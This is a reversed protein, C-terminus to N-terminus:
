FLVSVSFFFGSEGRSNIAYSWGLATDYYTVLDIGVGGGYLLRNVLRTNAPDTIANNVLGWDFFTKLYITYPLTRFEKLPVWRGLYKEGSLIRKKFDTKHLVYDQGEIVYLDYGRVFINDYGLGKFFNYPQKDPFSLKASVSNSFYFGKNLNFHREATALFNLQNIDDFIGLGLKEVKAKVLFGELPYSAYDRQDRKFEYSLAFIRQLTKGPLFYNPNLVAVTDAVTNHYFQLKFYHYTYFSYRLVYTLSSEFNKKLIRDFKLFCQRHDQSKYAINKSEEYSLVVKLGLRQLQDIYPLFYSFEFKKNFGFQTTIGLKEGMGRVNNHYFKMGYNVRSLDRNQNTWWESFSRDALEFIPIPLIYWREEVSVVIDIQDNPLDIKSIDVKLFLQTNILKDSDQKFIKELDGKAVKEGESVQLERSIVQDKTKKNGAITIQRIYVVDNYPLNASSDASFPYSVPTPAVHDSESASLNLKNFCLLAFLM